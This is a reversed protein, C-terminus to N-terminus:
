LGRAWPGPERRLPAQRWALTAGQRDILWWVGFVLAAAVRLALGALLIALQLLLLFGQLLWTGFLVVGVYVAVVGLAFGM